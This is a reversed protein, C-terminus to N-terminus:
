GTPPNDGPGAALSSAVIARRRLSEVISCCSIAPCAWRFFVARLSRCHTSRKFAVVVRADAGIAEATTEAGAVQNDPLGDFPNSIDIVLKDRPKPAYAKALPEVARAPTAIVVM